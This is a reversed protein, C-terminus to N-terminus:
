NLMGVAHLFLPCQTHAEDQLYLTNVFHARGIFKRVFHKFMEITCAAM